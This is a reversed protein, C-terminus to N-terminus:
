FNRFKLIELMKALKESPAGELFELPIVQFERRKRYKKRLNDFNEGAKVELFSNKLLNTDERPEYFLNCIAKLDIEENKTLKRASIKHIDPLGLKAYDPLSIKYFEALKEAIMTSGRIKADYSYGAIHPSGLFCLNFLEQDIEPENEWVDLIAARITKNKLAVKLEQNNVVSGRCSNILVASSKMQRLANSDILHYTKDVGSKILPVHITIFDSDKLVKEFSVFPLPDGARERPPDNLLVKMGLAEAYRRVITGVNGVGVVGLSKGELTIQTAQAYELLCCVVYEGVAQANCGPASYFAINQSKLENEKVHDRGITCTGVFKVATNKLLEADVNTVSRIILTDAEKLDTNTIKRGPLAKIYGFPSFIEQAHPINEDLVIRLSM